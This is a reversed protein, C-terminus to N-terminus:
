LLTQLFALYKGLELSNWQSLANNQRKRAATQKQLLSHMEIASLVGRRM